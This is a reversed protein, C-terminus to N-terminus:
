YERAPLRSAPLIPIRHSRIRRRRRIPTYPGSCGSANFQLAPYLTGVEGPPLPSSPSLTTTTCAAIVISFQLMSSVQGSYPDQAQASFTLTGSGTPTGTITGDSNFSLGDYTGDSAASVSFSSYSWLYKGNNTGGSANLQVIEEDPTLYDQGATAGPLAAATIVVPPNGAPLGPSLREFAFSDPRPIALSNENIKESFRLQAAMELPKEFSRQIIVTSAAHRAITGRM